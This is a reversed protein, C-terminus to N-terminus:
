SLAKGASQIHPCILSNAREMHELTDIETWPMDVKDVNSICEIRVDPHHAAMSVYDMARYGADGDLLVPVHTADNTLGGAWVGKFGVEEVICASIGNDAEGIFNLGPFAPMQKLQTIKKVPAHKENM